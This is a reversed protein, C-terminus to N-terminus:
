AVCYLDAQLYRKCTVSALLAQLYRKFVLLYPQHGTSLFMEQVISTAIVETLICPATGDSDSVPELTSGHNLEHIPHEYILESSDLVTGRATIIKVHLVHTLRHAQM